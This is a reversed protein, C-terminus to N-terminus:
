RGWATELGLPMVPLARSRVPASPERVVRLVDARLDFDDSGVIRVEVLAGIALPSESRLETVGDM